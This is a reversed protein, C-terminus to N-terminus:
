LHNSIAPLFEAIALICWGTVDGMAASTLAMTGLRTGTMNREQLIRAMVPFATISMRESLFAEVDNPQSNPVLGRKVPDAMDAKLKDFRKTIRSM